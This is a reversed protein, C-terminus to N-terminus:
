SACQPAAVAPLLPPFSYMRESTTYRTNAHHNTHNNHLARELSTKLQQKGSRKGVDLSPFALGHSPRLAAYPPLKHQM